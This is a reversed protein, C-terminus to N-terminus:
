TCCRSQGNWASQMNLYEKKSLSMCSVKASVVHTIESKLETSCKAGFMHAMKWIETTEPKTDLPIVSSFLIHSGAL